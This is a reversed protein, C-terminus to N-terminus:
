KLIMTMRVLLNLDVSTVICTSVRIEAAIGHVCVFKFNQQLAAAGCQKFFKLAFETKWPLRFNSLFRSRHFYKGYLTNLAYESPPSGTNDPSTYQTVPGYSAQSLLPAYLKGIHAWIKLSHGITKIQTWCM